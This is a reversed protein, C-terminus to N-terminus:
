HLQMYSRQSRVNQHVDFDTSRYAPFLLLKLCTSLVIVHIESNSLPWVSSSPQFEAGYQQQRQENTAVSPVSM